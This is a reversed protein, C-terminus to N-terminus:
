QLRSHSLAEWTASTTLFGEALAPSTLSVPKIEQDPLDEPPPFPLGSWYEQRSFEMSLPAQRTITWLIVFLWVCSFRSLVWLSQFHVLLHPWFSRLTLGPLAKFSVNLLRCKIRCIIWLESSELLIYLM